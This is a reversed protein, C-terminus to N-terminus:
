CNAGFLGLKLRNASGMQARERQSMTPTWRRRAGCEEGSWLRASDLMFALAPLLRDYGVIGRKAKYGAALSAFGIKLHRIPLVAIASVIETRTVLVSGPLPMKPLPGM